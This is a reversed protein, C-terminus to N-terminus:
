GLLDFFVENGEGDMECFGVLECGFDRFIVEECSWVFFNRWRDLFLEM